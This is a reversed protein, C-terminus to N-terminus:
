YRAYKRFIPRGKRNNRIKYIAKFSTTYYADNYKSFASSYADLYDTTTWRYGAEVSLSWKADLTYKLGAGVPIVLGYHMNNDYGPNDVPPLDGNDLDKISGKSM